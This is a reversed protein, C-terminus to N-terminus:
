MWTSAFSGRPAENESTSRAVLYQDDVTGFRAYDIKEGRLLSIRPGERRSWRCGTFVITYPSFGSDFWGILHRPSSQSLHNDTPDIRSYLSFYPLWLITRSSINSSGLRRAQIKASVCHTVQRLSDARASEGMKLDRAFTSM